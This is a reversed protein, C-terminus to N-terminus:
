RRVGSPLFCSASCDERQSVSTRAMARMIFGSGSFLLHVPFAEKSAIQGVGFLLLLELEVEVDGCLLVDLASHLRALRSGRRAPLSLQLHSVARVGRSM